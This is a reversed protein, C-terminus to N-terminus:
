KEDTRNSYTNWYKRILLVTLILITHADSIRTLLLSTILVVYNIYNKYSAVFKWQRCTWRNNCLLVEVLQLHRWGSSIVNNIEAFGTTDFIGLYRTPILQLFFQKYGKLDRATLYIGLRKFCYHKVALAFEVRKITVDDTVANIM